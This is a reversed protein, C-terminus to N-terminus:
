ASKVPDLLDETSLGFREGTAPLLQFMGVAGVENPSQINVYESEIWPLYLGILPSLNHAKFVTILTPAQALGRELVLHLDARGARDGGGIRLRQAYQTVAKQIDAEFEPTFEYETGAMERAIRRAQTGVFVLREARSMDEYLPTAQAHAEIAYTIFLSM